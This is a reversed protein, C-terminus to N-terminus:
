KIKNLSMSIKISSLLSLITIAGFVILLVLKGSYGDILVAINGPEFMSSTLLAVLGYCILMMLVFLSISIGYRKKKTKVYSLPMYLAFTLLFYFIKILEGYVSVSTDTGETFNFSFGNAIFLVLTLFATFLITCAVYLFIVHVYDYKVKQNSTIPLQYLINSPESRIQYSFTSVLFVIILFLSGSSMSYTDNETFFTNYQLTFLIIFTIAYLYGKNSPKKVQLARYYDRYRM